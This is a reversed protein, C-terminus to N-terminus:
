AAWEEKLISYMKVDYFSGKTFLHQRLVGEFKMGVKEMVRASATNLLICRGEIRNLKMMQFGFAIVPHVAELMYGKGWYKKSLVYGIEARRQDQIWSALGCTGILKKDAKHIIGWDALEHNKYQEMVTSLFRKSDELSKHVSWINYRSVDPDSAYEFLDEADELTLDRLLLRETELTPLNSFKNKTPM